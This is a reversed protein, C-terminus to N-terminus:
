NAKNDDVLDIAEAKLEFEVDPSMILNRLLGTVGNSPPAFIGPEILSRGDTDLKIAAAVHALTAKQIQDVVVFIAGYDLSTWAFSIM